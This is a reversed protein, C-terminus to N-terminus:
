IVCPNKKSSLFFFDHLNIFRFESQYKGFAGAIDGQKFLANAAERIDKAIKLAVEANEIDGSEEDEPWDEYPDGGPVSPTPGLSPDDAALEGCGEIVVPSVPGDGASTQGNEIERVVSKGKIVQGFVVHKGDLHPTPATTIFFQSGLLFTFM